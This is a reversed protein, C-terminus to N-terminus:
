SETQFLNGEDMWEMCTSMMLMGVTWARIIRLGLSVSPQTLARGILQGCHVANVATLEVCKLFTKIDM